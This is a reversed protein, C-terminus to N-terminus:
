QHYMNESNASKDKSKPKSVLGDEYDNITSLIGDIADRQLKFTLRLFRFFAKQAYEDMM